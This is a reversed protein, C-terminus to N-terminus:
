FSSSHSIQHKVSRIGHILLIGAIVNIIGFMIGVILNFYIGAISPNEDMGHTTMNHLNKYFTGLYEERKEESVTIIVTLLISILLVSFLGSIINFWGIIYGGVELSLCFCFKDLVPLKM